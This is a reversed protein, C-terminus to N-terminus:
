AQADATDREGNATPQTQGVLVEAIRQLQSEIAADIEGAHTRLLCGGRNVQPDAVVHVHGARNTATLEPGMERLLEFEDPHLCLQVDGAHQVMELLARANARAVDTSAGVALKCVRQAVALALCILGTEASALLRRLNQEFESRLSTLAAGASAVQARAEELATAHTQERIQQLGAARGAALGEVYAAQKQQETQQAADQEAAQLIQRARAQAQELMQQAQHQFDAFSFTQVGGSREKRIVGAM